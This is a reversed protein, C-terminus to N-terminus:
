LEIEGAITQASGTSSNLTQRRASSQTSTTSEARCRYPIRFYYIFALVWFIAFGWFCSALTFSAIVNQTQGGSYLAFVTAMVLAFLGDCSLLILKFSIQKQIQDVHNSPKHAAGQRVKFTVFIGGALSFIIVILLVIAAIASFVLQAYSVYVARLAFLIALTALIVVIATAVFILWVPWTGNRRRGFSFALNLFVGGAICAGFVAFTIALNFCVGNAVVGSYTLLMPSDLGILYFAGLFASSLMVSGLGCANVRAAYSRSKDRWAVLFLEVLFVVTLASLALMISGYVIFAVEFHPGDEVTYLTENCYFGTTGPRCICSFTENGDIPNISVSCWGFRNCLPPTSLSLCPSIDSM